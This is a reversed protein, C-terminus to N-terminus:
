RYRCEVLSLDVGSADDTCCVIRFPPTNEKNHHRHLGAALRNVYEPGYKSGYKILVFCLTGPVMDAPAKTELDFMPSIM